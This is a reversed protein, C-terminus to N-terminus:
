YSSTFKILCKSAIIAHFYVCVAILESQKLLEQKFFRKKKVTELEKM